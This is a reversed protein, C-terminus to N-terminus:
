ENKNEKLQILEYICLLVAILIIAGGIYITPYIEFLEKINNSKHAVFLPMLIFLISAIFDGITEGILAYKKPKISLTPVIIGALILLFMIFSVTNFGLVINNNNKYGFILELGDFEFLTEGYAAYKGMPFLLFLFGVFMFISRLLFNNNKIFKM